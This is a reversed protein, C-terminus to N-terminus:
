TGDQAPRRYWVVSGPLARLRAALPDDDALEALLLDVLRATEKASEVVDDVHLNGIADFANPQREFQAEPIDLAWDRVIVRFTEHLGEPVSVRPLLYEVYRTEFEARDAVM